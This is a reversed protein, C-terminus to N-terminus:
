GTQEHNIEFKEKIAKEVFSAVSRYRYRHQNQEHIYEKVENILSVHIAITSFKSPEPM